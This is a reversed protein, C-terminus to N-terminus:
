KRGIGFYTFGQERMRAPQFINRGDFIVPSKMLSKMRAFDPHRFENWETVVFLGDVGELADYPLDAYRIRDGFVRKSAHAAVPDHAIVTAGKGILGEIVEISPAERMDDTKPKFALGWVGFKKGELTGYHKVAKNVLLKKQRENTREVARLLDLELGYERATTVLAKVDKPFCSGGYGVGPFLFPYGIRKDAGLGKRVFDVDAGVKECLAAVDNMFSIRTALMANAAYKTLEASRTDMFLIPNETRVFPAYLEGMLTRARETDAGIVVRDPKFFDDLAAGEKLFEPNSVVDFEVDTVKAIAERVKDATGVPVTSKDVVVTYQKMARGVAQAAALVYQLDAEGSEGEPTGVAIFVAQANQVGEALNTTFTLRKEKVNKRILEELGPEYIPVQGDQLMRIKREDIDVCAVDNGSDAFCTGAVLGVYGSGIIAIRM